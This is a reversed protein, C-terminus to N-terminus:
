KTLSSVSCSKVVGLAPDGFISNSCAVTGTFTRTVFSSGAGYRVDRTGSFTCLGEEGACTNWTEAAPATTSDAAYSCTKAVNPTPDGFVANSCAVSGTVTRSVFTTGSGYRVEHTGSFTCTGGENACQTWATAAYSCTKAVNPTPDGFVANSCAVSGTVTRSVFTTGSGYRVERTGSFTCTGGENACQTWGTTAPPTAAAGNSAYAGIDNVNARAEGSAVHQYQAIPALVFGTPATGPASAANIMPSGAAPHLDYTARNVFAPAAANYNTRLTANGQSTVSGAGAFVNNQILAPTSVGSGIMVFTGSGADNLFTNNVVYLDKGPNSAGEEGYALINPNSNAAPQEIVNGIVYSTGANPLDVEYSPSGAATSSTQGPATSSFRNNYIANVQARSKLNHGVNADHSYSYRFTLSRVNGIYLNHSYGDGFGNHGFESYEILIDSATNAGSLIGNENDHLFSQRLTFGTGELRLAAGNQDPVRAGYMEVNDITINNGGVVWIAKGMANAGNADIMPRGNVGRITLNNRSIGCVDGKYINNGSIEITDGDRAANFAACPAAYQKGPGVSLTAASAGTAALLSVVLAPALRAAFSGTNRQQM